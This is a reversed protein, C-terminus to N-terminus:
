LRPVPPVCVAGMGGGEPRLRGHRAAAGGGTGEGRRAGHARGSRAERRRAAPRAQRVCRSPHCLAPCGWSPAAVPTLRQQPAVRRQLAALLAESGPPHPVGDGPQCSSAGASRSALRNFSCGYSARPRRAPPLRPAPPVLAAPVGGAPGLQRPAPLGPSGDEGRRRPYVLRRARSAVARGPRPPASLRRSGFARRPRPSPPCFPARLGGVGRGGRM